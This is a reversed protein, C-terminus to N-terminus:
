TWKDPGTSKTNEIYKSLLSEAKQQLQELQVQEKILESQWMVAVKEVNDM